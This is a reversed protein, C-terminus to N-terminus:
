KARAAKAEEATLLRVGLVPCRDFGRGPNPVILEADHGRCIWTGGSTSRIGVRTTFDIEPCTGLIDLQYYTSAGTRVLVTNRDVAHFNNVQGATFCQRGSTGAASQGQPPQNYTCSALAVTAVALTLTRDM